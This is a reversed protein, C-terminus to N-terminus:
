QENYWNIFNIISTYLTDFDLIIVADLVDEMVGTQEYEPFDNLIKKAVPMLWDWSNAYDGYPLAGEVNPHQKDMFEYCLTMQKTYSLESM